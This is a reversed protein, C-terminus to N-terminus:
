LNTTVEPFRRIYILREAQRRTVHCWNQAQTWERATPSWLKDGRCVQETPQLTYYGRPISLPVESFTRAEYNVKPAAPRSPTAPTYHPGRCGDNDEPRFTPKEVGRIYVQRPLLSNEDQRCRAREGVRRTPRWSPTLRNDYGVRDGRQITEDTRLVRWGAPLAPGKWNKPMDLEKNWDDFTQAHLRKRTKTHSADRRTEEARVEALREM